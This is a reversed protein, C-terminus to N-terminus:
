ASFHAELADLAGEITFVEAEVDVRIGRDRATKSTVPGICAVVKAGLLRPGEAGLADAVSDVMSSSTLLVVDSGREVAVRLEDAKEGQVPRTEYAPVVDVDIGVKSLEEPIVERASLARPLLVRQPKPDQVLLERVLDEAVFTRAMLDPVINRARLAAGTKPGIVGVKAAGFLRADKGMEGAARFFEAVGNASTFLVWDYTHADRVAQELREPDPSPLIEIAPCLVPQASRARLARATDGAQHRPRAVLVRKGFLPKRDYWRLQERMAVVEGIIIIAPSSLQAERARSAIDALTGTVTRQNPRAGWRIVAAPTAPDRGGDIVAQTIAEIRRMGMFVCITGTATALKKWAEPSWDKGERDSGTIFTVSSSADRHTLPIGAFASAAVPSTVGPVIEFPVGAEALALAEESGRAFLIPDGGKLRVVDRGAQAYELLLKTIQAQPTARKGYRKGVDVIEAQPCLDLLEPHSLADHLVVEAGALLLAGRYTILDPDGPGAGLLWVRGLRKEESPPSPVDVEPASTPPKPDTM